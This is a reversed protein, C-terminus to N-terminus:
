NLVSCAPLSHRLEEIARDDIGACGQLSVMRLSPIARLMLVGRPTIEKCLALHLAILSPISAIHGMGDDTLGTCGTLDLSKMRGARSAIERLLTATVGPCYALYLCEMEDYALLALLGQDSLGPCDRASFVRLRKLPRSQYSPACIQPNSDITLSSLSPASALDSIGQVSIGPCNGLNLSELPSSAALTALGRDSVMPCRSIDLSRLSPMRAVMGMSEDTISACGSMSLYRLSSCQSVARVADDSLSARDNVDLRELRPIGTLSRYATPSLADRDGPNASLVLHNLDQLRSLRLLAADTILACGGLDLLQLRPLYDILLILVADTIRPHGRVHICSGEIRLVDQSSKVVVAGDSAPRLPPPTALVTVQPPETSSWRAAAVLTILLSALVWAVAPWALSHLTPRGVQAPM